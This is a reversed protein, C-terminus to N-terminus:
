LACKYCILCLGCDYSFIGTVLQSPSCVKKHIELVFFSSPVLVCIICFLLVHQMIKPQWTSNQLGFEAEVHLTVTSNTHLYLDTTLKHRPGMTM